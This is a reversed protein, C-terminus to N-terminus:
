TNPDLGWGPRYSRRKELAKLRGQLRPLQAHLADGGIPRGQIRRRNERDKAWHGMVIQSNWIRLVQILGDQPGHGLHALFESGLLGVRGRGGV